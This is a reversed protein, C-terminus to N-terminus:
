RSCLVAEELPGLITDETMLLARRPVWKLPMILPSRVEVSQTGQGTGPM